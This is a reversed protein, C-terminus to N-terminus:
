RSTQPSAARSGGEARAAIRAQQKARLRQRIELFLRQGAKSKPDLYLVGRVTRQADRPRDVTGLQFSALRLWTEPDGPFRLVARELTAEADAERGAATQVSAQVLLPKSALPNSDEANAAETAAEGLRGDAALALARDSARDSAEPLWIAWAFLLAAGAIGAAVAIRWRHPSPLPLTLQRSPGAAALPGRGAVFGGAALAMVAPGPVFWTWDIASQLGFVVAVLTLAVLSIRQQTWDRREVPGARRRLRPYLQTPRAAAVLWAALLVLTVGLGVLGLDALTQPIFGHAHRSVQDSKRYRLRAIGFTGAGTGAAPRDEFVKGAERWFTSRSNSTAALRGAGESPAAASESTLEHVRDHITGGLGRDSFAVSTFLVLPVACVFAVAVVGARRGMAVPLNLRTLGLNVAMGAMLLAAVMAVLLLGFEGAVSQRASLPEAYKSFADQSLAWAAVPVVGVAPLVLVPLSRVRLPVFAFWIGAGIIASALAGRSQTLLIALLALGLAPYALVRAAVTGVTRSGLWLGIPVMMAATTGVANWYGFPEGLRNSIQNEALADPWVRSALGYIVVATAGLLLAHLLVPTAQPVVRGAAVAAAFVALYALMRGADTFSLDPVISWTVSLATLATLAALATLAPGGHLPGTPGWLLATGLGLAGLLVLALEVATTRGLATGGAAGFAVGAFAAGLLITSAASARSRSV